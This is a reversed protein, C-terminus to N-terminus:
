HKYDAARTEPWLWRDKTLQCQHLSSIHQLWMLWFWVTECVEPTAWSPCRGGLPASLLTGNFQNPDLEVEWAASKLLLIRQPGMHDSPGYIHGCKKGKETGWCEIAKSNCEFLPAALLKPVLLQFDTQVGLYMDQQHCCVRPVISPGKSKNCDLTLHNLLVSCSCKCVPGTSIPLYHCNVWCICVM